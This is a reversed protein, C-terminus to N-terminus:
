QSVSRESKWTQFERAHEACLDKDDAPMTSCNACLPADCTGSRKSAVKWDCLRTSRRGCKCRKVRGGTCVIASGGGPLSVSECPVLSGRWIYGAFPGDPNRHYRHPGARQLRPLAARPNDREQTPGFPTRLASGQARITGGFQHISAYTAQPGTPKVGVEAFTAGSRRDLGRRLWGDKYLTKGGTEAARASMKWPVGLPSTEADFRERTNALM